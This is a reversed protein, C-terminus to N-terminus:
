SNSSIGDCIFPRSLKLIQILKIRKAVYEVVRFGYPIKQGNATISSVPKGYLPVVISIVLVYGRCGADSARRISSGICLETLSSLPVISKSQSWILPPSRMLWNAFHSSTGAARGHNRIAENRNRTTVDSSPSHGIAHMIELVTYMSPLQFLFYYVDHYYSYYM